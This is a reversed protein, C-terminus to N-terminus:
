INDEEIIDRMEQIMATRARDARTKSWPQSGLNHFRREVRWFKYDLHPKTKFLDMIDVLEEVGKEKVFNIVFPYMFDYVAKAMVIGIVMDLTQLNNELSEVHRHTAKLYKGPNGVGVHGGLNPIILRELNSGQAPLERSIAPLFNWENECLKVELHRLLCKTEPSLCSLFAWMAPLNKFNFEQNYVFGVAEQYIAKSVRLLALNRTSKQAILLRDYIDFGQALRKRPRDPM